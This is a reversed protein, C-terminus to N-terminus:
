RGVVRAARFLETLPPAATPAGTAPMTHPMRDALTAGAVRRVARPPSTALSAPLSRFGPRPCRAWPRPVTLGRLELHHGDHWGRDRDGRGHPPREPQPHQRHPELPGSLARGHVACPVLR